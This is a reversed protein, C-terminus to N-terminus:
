KKGVGKDGVLKIVKWCPLDKGKLKVLAGKMGKGRCRSRGGAISGSNDKKGKRKQKCPQSGGGTGGKEGIKSGGTGKEAPLSRKKDTSKRLERGRKKGCNKLRGGGPKYGEMKKKGFCLSQGGGREELSEWTGAFVDVDQGGRM